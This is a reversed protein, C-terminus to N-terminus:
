GQCACACIYITCKVYITFYTCTDPLVDIIYWYITESCTLRESAYQKHDPMRIVKNEEM